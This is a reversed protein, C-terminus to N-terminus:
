FDGEAKRAGTDQSGQMTSGMIACCSLCVTTQTKYTLKLSIRVIGKLKKWGYSISM